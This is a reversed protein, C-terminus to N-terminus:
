GFILASTIDNPIVGVQPAPNRGAQLQTQATAFDYAYCGRAGMSQGSQGGLVTPRSGGVPARSADNLAAVGTADLEVAPQQATM